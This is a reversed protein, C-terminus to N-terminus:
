QVRLTQLYALVNHMDDDTYKALQDSHADLPNDVTFKVQKTPWSRQWGSGDVLSITFEDRYALKGTVTEGSATTVTVTAPRPAASGRGRPYLMRQLLALGKVRDAIGALDGTPSHCRACGGAGNFYQRGAEANGTRLDDDDVSRRRGEQSEAKAKRDHIFAVIATLDSASLAFGPMGKDVRGDRIVPMLKDGRTDEAVLTSRTLDPGTEGGAADRGHCFGCRAVFLPEGAQVQEPPYTQATVTQPPRQSATQLGASSTGLAVWTLVAPLVRIIARVHASRLPTM